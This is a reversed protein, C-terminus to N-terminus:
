IQKRYEHLAMGFFDAVVGSARYGNREYFAVARSLPLTTDLSVTQCGAAALEGEITELLRQAIGEGQWEPPVAMGRLHGEHGHVSGGVTGVVTGSPARAVLVTMTELRRRVGEETLVTDRYAGPTYRDRYPEFAATLCAQIGAGDEAKALEITIM